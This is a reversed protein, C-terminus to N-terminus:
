KIKNPNVCTAVKIRSVDDGSIREDKLGASGTEQQRQGTLKTNAKTFSGHASPIMPNLRPAQCTYGTVWVQQELGNRHKPRARTPVGLWECGEPGKSDRKVLKAAASPLIVNSDWTPSCLIFPCLGGLRPLSEGVTAAPAM